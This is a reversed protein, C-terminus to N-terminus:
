VPKYYVALVTEFALREDVNFEVLEEGMVVEGRLPYVQDFSVGKALFTTAFYTVMSLTVNSHSYNVATNYLTPVVNFNSVAYRTAKSVYTRAYQIQRDRRLADSDIRKQDRYRVYQVAEEGDLTVTRGATFRGYTELATLTVGGIADNLVAIGSLDLAAYLHIPMGYLLRGVSSIVNQCSTDTGNGYAYALCIQMNQVGIYEGKVNYLNVETMSDRPISIIKTDGTKVDIVAIMITDAQGATGIQNAVLGLEKKDVGLLAISILNENLKYTIGNYVLTKGEDYTAAYKNDDVGTSDGSLQWRGISNLLLWVGATSILLVALVIATTRMIRVYLPKKKKRKKKKGKAQVGSRDTDEVIEYKQALREIEKQREQIYEPSRSHHSRGSGHSSSRHSGSKSHASHRSGGHGGNGGQSGSKHSRSSSHRDDYSRNNQENM